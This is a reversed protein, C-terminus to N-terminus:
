PRVADLGAIGFLEQTIATIRVRVAGNDVLPEGDPQVAGAASESVGLV